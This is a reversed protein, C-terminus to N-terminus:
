GREIIGRAEAVDAITADPDPDDRPPEVILSTAGAQIYERFSRALEAPTPERPVYVVVEHPRRAAATTISSRVADATIGLDLVLGDALEGALALTKPGRAGLLLPPVALPPWDPAVQALRIYDGAVDVTEGHLLAQVATVWERLLTMPSAARAGVQEMWDLVGHGAAPVFRDPFMRSVAAVEMAALAPNRLPVPILGLGVRITRTASLAATASTLGGALFCDEWLWVDDLGADEARQVFGRLQEPPHSPRFVIGVRPASTGTMGAGNETIVTREV